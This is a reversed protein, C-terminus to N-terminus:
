WPQPATADQAPAPVGPNGISVLVKIHEGSASLDFAEAVHELPRTATVIDSARVAGAQLLRISEKYDEPLYTASGQIRIQHDQVIALPVTVDAAPVGVVVVTGGKSALAIAQRMTPEIAVCDVVVDASQGLAARVQDVVDAAVADVVADAGLSIAKDRKAAQVDTVVVTGVGHAKLVALVLLGITGAGLVVATRGRVGDLGSGFADGALRVAHVPTSLPEVLAATIDDLDDPLLHLRDAPVTFLDAMGGQEWGCGFFQLNECLNQRGTSCMKCTWCPLDPEVTVRRGVEVLTVGPGVQEVVGVVEHGPHYPIPIFPHRGHAAHTDSGCVGAVVSRVLVEGSRPSPVLADTVVEIRDAHVVVRRMLQPESAGTM